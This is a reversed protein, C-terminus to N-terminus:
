YLYQYDLHTINIISNNNLRETIDSEIRSWASSSVLGRQGEGAGSTQGLEHGNNQHHWGAM